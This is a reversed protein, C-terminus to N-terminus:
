APEVDEIGLEEEDIHPLTQHTICWARFEDYNNITEFEQEIKERAKTPNRATVDIDAIWELRYRIAMRFKTM